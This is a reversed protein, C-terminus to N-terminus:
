DFPVFPLESNSPKYSETKSANEEQRGGSADKNEPQKASADKDEPQKASVDNDEASSPTLDDGEEVMQDSDTKEFNVSSKEDNRLSSTYVVAIVVIIGIIILGVIWQQKKMKNYRRIVNSSM